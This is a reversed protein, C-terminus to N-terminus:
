RVVLLEKTEVGENTVLRIYYAGRSLRAVDLVAHHRGSDHRGNALRRVLRGQIDFLGLSVRREQGLDFALNTQRRCPNPFCSIQPRGEPVQWVLDDAGQPHLTAVDIEFVKPWRKGTVFLTVADPNYAIGNLVSVRPSSAVSDVLGGLDLWAEIDGSGPDIVAIEHWGLVNAYIKGQIYELENLYYVPAGEDRVQIQSVLERTSPELFRITPSGDSTILHTGDHTLGWGDWPYPFTEILRFTDEEVYTFGVNEVWTLQYLTDRLATVGEGFYDADLDFRKTVLGTEVEVKRLSSEGYLGTGEYFVSDAYILGQTFARADHLYVNLVEYTYVPTTAGAPFGATCLLALAYAAMMGRSGMTPTSGLM